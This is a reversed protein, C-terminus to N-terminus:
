YMEINDLAGTDLYYREDALTRWQFTVNKYPGDWEAPEGAVEGKVNTLGLTEEQGKTQNRTLTIELEITGDRNDKDVKILYVPTAESQPDPSLRRGILVRESAMEFDKRASTNEPSFLVRDSRIRSSREDMIGWYYQNLNAQPTAAAHQDKMRFRIAGLKGKTMLSEVAAGVVVASKPDVIIGPNRGHTDQYPYWAGAYHNFMPVIRSAHLPLYMQVLDQIYRLKTPQGALLVLDVNCDVIRRCFDLLLENFVEHVVPEFTAQDYALGLDQFVSITGASFEADIRDQLSQVIDPDVYDPDTHSIITHPNEDVANQLYAQALPVFLRNIWLVRDSRFHRNWPREEGFLREREDGQMGVRDSFYPVIVRELLRKVLQDGAHSIGDRHLMEGSITDVAGAALEYRAIMLDSTGGGIDICAIRVERDEDTDATTTAPPPAPRPTGGPRGPGMPGGPKLTSPPRMMGPPRGPGPPGSPGGGLGGPPGGPGPRNGPGMGHSGMADSETITEESDEPEEELPQHGVLSFWLRPDRDVLQLESWLYTLHVASAEDISLTLTPDNRQMRGLTRRFLDLAKQAQRRFREREQTIMGSPYTLTLNRIERPRGQDGTMSRYAESNIYTYAQAVMEYLAAVMMCRPAHHPKYPIERALEDDGIEDSDLPPLDLEDPDEEELYRLLPGQLTGAYNHTELRDDPDAMHWIAGQLWSDDDAWLYRKPSSVGTLVTGDTQMVQTVDDAEQGMRVASLDQFLRPTVFVTRTTGQPRKKGIGLFGGSRAAGEDSAAITKELRPPSLYPSTCWQTRSSFWRASDKKQFDGEENFADLHHRNILEFPEMMPTDAAEQDIEILLAGTRSNGFDVVMHVEKAAGAGATAPRITLDVRPLGALPVGELGMLGEIVVPFDGALAEENCFYGKEPDGCTTDVALMLRGPVIKWQIYNYVRTQDGMEQCECRQWGHGVSASTFRVGSSLPQCVYQVGTNAFVVHM